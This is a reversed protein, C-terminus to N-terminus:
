FTFASRVFSSFQVISEDCVGFSILFDGLHFSRITPGLLLISPLHHSWNCLSYFGYGLPLWRLEPMLSQFSAIQNGNLIHIWLSPYFPCFFIALHLFYNKHYNSSGLLMSPNKSFWFEICHTMTPLFCAAVLFLASCVNLMRLFALRVNPDNFKEVIKARKKISMAGDLRFYGYSKSFSSLFILVQMM